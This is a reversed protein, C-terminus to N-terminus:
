SCISTKWLVRTWNGAVVCWACPHTSPHLQRRLCFSDQSSKKNPRQHLRHQLATALDKRIYQVFTNTPLYFPVRERACVYELDQSQLRQKELRIAWRLHGPYDMSKTLIMTYWVQAPIIPIYWQGQCPQKKALSTIKPFNNKTHAETEKDTFCLYFSVLLKLPETACAQLGLVPSLHIIITQPSGPSYLSYWGLWSLM